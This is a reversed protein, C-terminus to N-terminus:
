ASGDNVAGKETEPILNMTYREGDVIVQITNNRGNIRYLTAGHKNILYRAEEAKIPKGSELRSYFYKEDHYAKIDALFRPGAIVYAIISFLVISYLSGKDLFLATFLIAFFPISLILWARIASAQKQSMVEHQNLSIPKM